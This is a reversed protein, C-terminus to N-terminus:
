KLRELDQVYKETDMPVLDKMVHYLHQIFVGGIMKKIQLDIYGSSKLRDLTAKTEPPNGDRIQNEIVEFVLKQLRPNFSEALTIVERM